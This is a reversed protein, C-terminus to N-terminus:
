VLRVEVHLIVVLWNELLDLLILFGSDVECLVVEVFKELMDITHALVQHLVPILALFQNLAGVLINLQITKNLAM